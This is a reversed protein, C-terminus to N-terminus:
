CNDQNMAYARQANLHLTAMLSLVPDRIPSLTMITTGSAM